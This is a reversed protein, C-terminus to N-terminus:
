HMAEMVFELGPEAVKSGFLGPVVELEAAHWDLDMPM